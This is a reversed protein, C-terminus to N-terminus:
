GAGGWVPSTPVLLWTTEGNVVEDWQGVGGWGVCPIYTGTVLYDRWECGRGVARGRGVGCLPHLYWYGPLREM